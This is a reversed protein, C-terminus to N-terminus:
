VNINVPFAGRTFSLVECLTDRELLVLFSIFGKLNDATSFLGILLFNALMPRKHPVSTLLYIVTKPDVDHSKRKTSVRELGDKRRSM